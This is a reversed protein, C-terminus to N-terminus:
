CVQLKEQKMPLSHCLKAFEEKAKEAVNKTDWETKM